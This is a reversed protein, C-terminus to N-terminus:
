KLFDLNVNRQSLVNQDQNTEAVQIVVDKMRKLKHTQGKFAFAERQTQLETKNKPRVNKRKDKSDFITTPHSVRM